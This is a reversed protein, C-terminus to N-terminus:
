IYFIIIQFKIKKLLPSFKSKLAWMERRKIGNTYLLLQTECVRNSKIKLQEAKEYKSLLNKPKISAFMKELSKPNNPFEHCIIHNLFIVVLLLKVLEM